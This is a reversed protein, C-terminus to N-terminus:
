GSFSSQLKPTSTMVAMPKSQVRPRCSLDTCGNAARSAVIDAEGRSVDLVLRERQQEAGHVLGSVREVFLPDVRGEHPREEAVRGREANVLGLAAEPLVDDSARPREPVM